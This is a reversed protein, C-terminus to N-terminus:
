SRHLGCAEVTIRNHCAGVRTGVKELWTFRERQCRLRRYPSSFRIVAMSREMM